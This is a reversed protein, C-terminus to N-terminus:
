DIYGALGREALYELELELIEEVQPEHLDIDRKTLIYDVMDDIDIDVEGNRDPKAKGIFEQEYKLVREVAKQDLKAKGAIYATMDQVDVQESM